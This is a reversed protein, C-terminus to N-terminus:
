GPPSPQGEMVKAAFWDRDPLLDALTYTDLRKLFDQLAAHLAGQLGCPGAAPCSVKPGSMCEVFNDLSELNRVVTGVNVDEPRDALKLGGSRGRISSVYGLSQLRYAVKALHNRSIGYSRAIEDVSMQRGTAALLMLIRLAYDTQLNLHM